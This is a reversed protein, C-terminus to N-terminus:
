CFANWFNGIMPALLALRIQFRLPLAIMQTEATGAIESEGAPPHDCLHAQSV